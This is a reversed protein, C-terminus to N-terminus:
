IVGEASILEYHSARGKADKVLRSNLDEAESRKMLVFDGDKKVAVGHWPTLWTQIGLLQIGLKRSGCAQPHISLRVAEPFEAELLESWANSRRIVEYARVRCAKQIATRSQTQGPSLADEFLFRTIGCYMRHAEIEEPNATEAKGRRVKEKLANLSQGHKQMLESRVQDFDENNGYDDLNFVRIHKLNLDRIMRSLENQYSTIAEESIGVVDSFVRGDSCIVMEAGPEYIDEIRQCIKNLFRLAQREAMDPLRGLVKNLNPSKGPFAPLVFRIPQQKLIASTVKGLHPRMCCPCDSPHSEEVSGVMRQFELVLSLISKAQGVREELLNPWVTSEVALNSRYM